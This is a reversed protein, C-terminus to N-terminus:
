ESSRGRGGRQKKGSKKLWKRQNQIRRFSRLQEDTLIPMNHALAYDIHEDGLKPKFFGVFPTSMSAFFLFFLVSCWSYLQADARDKRELRGKKVRRTPERREM